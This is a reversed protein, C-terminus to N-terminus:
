VTDSPWLIALYSVCTDVLTIQRLTKATKLYTAQLKRMMTDLHMLTLWAMHAVVSCVSSCKVFINVFRLTFRTTSYTYVHLKNKGM